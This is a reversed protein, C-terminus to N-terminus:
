LFSSGTPKSISLNKILSSETVFFFEWPRRNRSSPSLLVCKQLIEIKEREIKRDQFHRISRRKLLLELM